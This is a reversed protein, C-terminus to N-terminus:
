DGGVADGHDGQACRIQPLDLGVAGRNRQPQQDVATVRVRARVPVPVPVPMPSRSSRRTASDPTSWGSPWTGWTVPSRPPDALERGIEVAERNAPLGDAHRGLTALNVASRTLADALRARDEDGGSDSRRCAAVFERDVTM